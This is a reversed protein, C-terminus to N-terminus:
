IRGEQNIINKNYIKANERAARSVPNGKASLFSGGKISNAKRFLILSKSQLSMKLM